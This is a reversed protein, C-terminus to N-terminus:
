HISQSRLCILIMDGGWGGLLDCALSAVMQDEHRLGPM